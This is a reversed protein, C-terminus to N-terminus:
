NDFVHSQVQKYLWMLEVENKKHSQKANKAYGWCLVTYCQQIFTLVTILSNPVHMTEYYSYKSIVTIGGLNTGSDTDGVPSIKEFWEM